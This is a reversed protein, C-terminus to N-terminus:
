RHGRGPDCPSRRLPEDLDKLIRLAARDEGEYSSTAMFDVALPVSIHRMLDAMFCVVGRLVGVLLLEKGRYDQSIQAGLEGM